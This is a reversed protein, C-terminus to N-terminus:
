QCLLIRPDWGYLIQDSKTAVQIGVFDLIHNDSPQRNNM